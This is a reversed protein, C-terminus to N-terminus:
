RNGDRRSFILSIILMILIVPWFTVVIKAAIAVVAVIVLVVLLIISILKWNIGGDARKFISTFGGKEISQKQGSEFFGNDFTNSTREAEKYGRSNQQYSETREAYAQGSETYSQATEAYANANEPVHDDPLEEGALGRTDPYESETIGQEYASTTNVRYSQPSEAINRAILIPDGLDFTVEEETRGKKLEGDIYGRYYSVQEEVADSSFDEALKAALGELFEAKNM